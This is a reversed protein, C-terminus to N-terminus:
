PAQLAGGSSRAPPSLSAAEIKPEELRAHWGGGTQLLRAVPM